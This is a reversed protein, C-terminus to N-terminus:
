QAGGELDLRTFRTSRPVGGEETIVAEGSYGTRVGGIEVWSKIAYHEDGVLQVQSKDDICDPFTLGHAKFDVPLKLSPVLKIGVIVHADSCIEYKRGKLDKAIIAPFEIDQGVAFKKAAPEEQAQNPQSVDVCGVGALCTLVALVKLRRKM